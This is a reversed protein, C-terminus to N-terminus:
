SLAPLVFCHVYGTWCAVASGTPNPTRIIAKDPVREWGDSGHPFVDSPIFVEYHDKTMRFQAPRCDAVSCCTIGTGPTMLSRYWASFQGPTGPPPRAAAVATLAAVMAIWAACAILTERM